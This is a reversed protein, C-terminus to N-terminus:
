NSAPRPRAGIRTETNVRNNTEAWAQQVDTPFTALLETVRASIKAVIDPHLPAVDYSEDVDRDMDYLEPNRLAYNTQRHGRIVSYSEQDYRTLHLKWRNWRAAQLNVNDFFLLVDRDISKKEGSLLPWIDIGDFPKEGPHAGTLKAVTPTVDMLSALGTCVSAAPIKGPLRALFPERVGGEYTDTKRGRLRGPSGQFWPGNDSTFIVLTNERLGNRDLTKMIEGFSWDIEALADGYLGLGSKGKFAPSAGLPIHVMSHALYLFFPGDKAREIFDISRKTYKQTLYDVDTEQEIVRTGDMLVRPEMDVSYPVGLYEDFGRSTPLYKEPIGLHWKGIACTKYGKAKLMDALTVEDLNLGGTDKPFLVRPVGVRTPYRGTLLSARSPSCVPDASDLNTFRMGEAAFKTVNPTPNAGGYVAIDGYGLDDCFVLVVNLPKELGLAAKPLMAAAASSFLFDRRTIGMDHDKRATSGFLSFDEPNYITLTAV